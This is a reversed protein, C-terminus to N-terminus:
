ALAPLNIADGDVSTSRDPLDDLRSQGVGTVGLNKGSKGTRVDDDPRSWGRQSVALSHDGGRSIGSLLPTRTTLFSQSFWDLRRTGHKRVSCAHRTPSRNGAHGARERPRSRPVRICQDMFSTEPEGVSVQIPAYRPM